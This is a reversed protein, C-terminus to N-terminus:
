KRATDSPGPRQPTTIDLGYREALEHLKARRDPKPTPQDAEYAERRWRRVQELMKSETPEGNTTM